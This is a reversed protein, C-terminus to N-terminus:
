SHNEAERLQPVHDLHSTYFYKLANGEFDAMKVTRTTTSGSYNGCMLMIQGFGGFGRLTRANGGYQEFYIMWFVRCMNACYGHPQTYYGCVLNTNVFCM